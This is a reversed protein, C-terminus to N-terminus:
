RGASIIFHGHQVERDGPNFAPCGDRRPIYKYDGADTSPIRGTCVYGIGQIDPRMTIICGLIKEM